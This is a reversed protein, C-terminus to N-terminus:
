SEFDIRLAGDDLRVDNFAAAGAEVFFRELRDLLRAELRRLSVSLINRGLEGVNVAKAKLTLLLWTQDLLRVRYKSESSRRMQMKVRLSTLSEISTYISPTKPFSKCVSVASIELRGRGKCKIPRTM